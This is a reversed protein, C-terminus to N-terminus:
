PSGGISNGALAAILRPVADTAVRVLNEHGTGSVPHEIVVRPIAPMGVARAVFGGQVVFEETVIAVAPIGARAAFIGDRM